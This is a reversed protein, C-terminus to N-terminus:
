EFVLMCAAHNSNQNTTHQVQMLQMYDRIWSIIHQDVAANVQQLYTGTGGSMRAFSIKQSM